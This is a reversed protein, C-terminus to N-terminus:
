LAIVAFEVDDVSLTMNTVLIQSGNYNLDYSDWSEPWCGKYRFGVIAGDNYDLMTLLVQKKYTNPLAYMGDESRVGRIWKSATSAAMGSVETYITMQLNEVTLFGAYHHVKGGKHKSQADYRISPTQISQIYEGANVVGPIVAYWQHAYMPDNPEYDQVRSIKDRMYPDKITFDESSEHTTSPLAELVMQFANLYRRVNATRADLKNIAKNLPQALLISPDRLTQGLVSPSLGGFM